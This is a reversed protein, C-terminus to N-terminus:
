DPNGQCGSWQADERDDADVTHRAAGRRDGLGLLVASVEGPRAFFPSHGGDLEVVQAGIRAVANRRAWSEGVARDDRMLVYTSPTDPWRSIPCRETFVTFSQYRLEEFARRALAEPCDHYFGERVSEWTLGFPGKGHEQPEPFTIADPNAGLHDIFSQGPVPLLGGVFVMHRVPYLTAVVPACLASISHAVVVVDKPAGDVEREIADIAVQAWKLAGASDDDVPLDPAIARHDRRRLERRVADWCSGYHLGGHLLAFVTM